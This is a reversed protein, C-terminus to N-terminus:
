PRPHVSKVNRRNTPTRIRELHGTIAQATYTWAFSMSFTVTAALGLSKRAASMVAPIKTTSRGACSSLDYPQGVIWLAHWDSHLPNKALRNAYAPDAGLRRTMGRQVAAAFDSPKRRHSDCIGVPTALAYYLHALLNSPNQVYLNPAALRTRGVSTRTPGTLTSSSGTSSSTM